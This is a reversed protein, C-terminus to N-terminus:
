FRKREMLLAGLSFFLVMPSVVMLVRVLLNSLRVGDLLLNHWKLYATFLVTSWGLVAAGAAMIAYFTLSILMSLAPSPILFSLFCACGILTLLPVMDLALYAIQWISGVGGITLILVTDLAAFLFAHGACNLFVSLGKALYLGTRSVPCVLSTVISGSKIESAFVDNAGMFALMPLYAYLLLNEFLNSGVNAKKVLVRILVYVLLMLIFFVKYKRRKFIKREEARLVHLFGSM